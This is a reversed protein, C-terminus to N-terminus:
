PCCNLIKLSLACTSKTCIINNTKVKSLVRSCICSGAEQCILVSNHNSALITLSLIEKLIVTYVCFSCLDAKMEANFQAM